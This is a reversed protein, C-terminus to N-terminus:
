PAGTQSEEDSTAVQKGYKISTLEVFCEDLLILQGGLMIAGWKGCAKVITKTGNITIPMDKWVDIGEIVEEEIIRARDDASLWLHPLLMYGVNAPYFFNYRRRRNEKWLYTSSTGLHARDIAKMLRLAMTIGRIVTKYPIHIYKHEHWQEPLEKHSIDYNRKEHFRNQEIFKRYANIETEFQGTKEKVFHFTLRGVKIESLETLRAIIENSLKDVLAVLIAHQPNGLPIDSNDLDPNRSEAMFQRLLTWSFVIEGVEGRLNSILNDLDTNHVRLKLKSM